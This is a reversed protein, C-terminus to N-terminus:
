YQRSKGMTINQGMTLMPNNDKVVKPGSTENRKDKFVCPKKLREAKAAMLPLTEFRWEKCTSGTGYRRDASGDPEM